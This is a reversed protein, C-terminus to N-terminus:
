FSLCYTLVFLLMVRDWFMNSETKLLARFDPTSFPTKWCGM